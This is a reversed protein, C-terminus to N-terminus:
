DNIEVKYNILILYTTHPLEKKWIEALEKIHIEKAVKYINFAEEVTMSYGIVDQKGFKSLSTLYGKRYKHVGKPYKGRRRSNTILASNIEQPLFLCTEPSYIKCNKCILDKDIQWHNIYNNEMWEAFVQFNLWEECVIVGIYSLHNKRAKENYCRRIMQAWKNYADTKVGNERTKYKGIGMYGVGCVSKFYPNRTQGNVLSRYEVNHLITGDEFQITCNNSDIYEVITCKENDKNTIIKGNRKKILNDNVEKGSM